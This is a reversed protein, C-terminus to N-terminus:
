ASVAALKNVLHEPRIHSYRKLASLTRHGSVAAAEMTSFGVEHLRTIASHRLDHFTLDVLFAPDAVRGAQQCEVEYTKRAQRVARYWLHSVVNATIDFVAQREGRNVGKLISVADPCLPVYRADGNKTMPLLAVRRDLDVHRWQLSVVEGLRMATALALRAVAPLEPNVTAQLIREMEGPQITRSRGQGVSPWRIERAPNGCGLSWDLRATEFLSSIVTLYRAVSGPVMDRLWADRVQAIDASTVACLPTNAIALRRLRPMYATVSSARRMRPTVEKEYRALAQAFTLGTKRADKWNGLHMASETAKAWAVADARAHFTKSVQPYGKVRVRVLYKANRKIITAM